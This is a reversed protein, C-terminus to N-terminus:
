ACSKTIESMVSHNRFVSDCNSHIVKGTLCDVLLADRGDEIEMDFNRKAVRLSREENGDFEPILVVGEQWRNFANCFSDIRYRWSPKKM